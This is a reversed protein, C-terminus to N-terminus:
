SKKADDDPHKGLWAAAVMDRMKVGVVALMNGDKGNRRDREDDAEDRLPLLTEDLSPRLKVLFLQEGIPSKQAPGCAKGM